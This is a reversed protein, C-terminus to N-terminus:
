IKLIIVKMRNSSIFLRSKKLFLHIFQQYAMFKIVRKWCLYILIMTLVKQLKEQLFMLGNLGKKLDIKTKPMTTMTVTGSKILRFIKDIDKQQVLRVRYM